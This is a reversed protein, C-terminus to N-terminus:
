AESAEAEDTERWHWDSSCSQGCRGAPFCFAEPKVTVKRLQRLSVTLRELGKVHVVVV